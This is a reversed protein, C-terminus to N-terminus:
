RRPGVMPSKRNTEQFSLSAGTQQVTGNTEKMQLIFSTIGQRTLKQTVSLASTSFVLGDKESVCDKPALLEFGRLENPSVYYARAILVFDGRKEVLRAPFRMEGAKLNRGAALALFTDYAQAVYREDKEECAIVKALYGVNNTDASRAIGLALLCSLLSTFVRLM